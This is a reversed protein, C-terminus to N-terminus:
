CQERDEQNKEIGPRVDGDKKTFDRGEGSRPQAERSCIAQGDIKRVPQAGYATRPSTESIPM